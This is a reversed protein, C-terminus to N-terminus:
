RPELAPSFHRLVQPEWRIGLGPRQEGPHPDRGALPRRERCVPRWLERHARGDQRLEVERRRHRRSVTAAAELSLRCQRRRRQGGSARRLPRQRERAHCSVVAAQVQREQRTAPEVEPSRLEGPLPAACHSPARRALCPALAMSAGELDRAGRRGRDVDESRRDAGLERVIEAVRARSAVVVAREIAEGMTAATAFREEPCRELARMVVADLSAAEPASESPAPVRGIVIEVLVEVGSGKRMQAGTLLEWLVAGVSYIDARRDSRGALQEPALYRLKGKVADDVTHQRRFAAKAVGFDTIRASGDFGVLVNEPSVDRHVVGLARGDAHRSEHAAHLGALVDRAIAAVVDLPLRREAHAALRLLKALDLGDIWEMVLAPEDGGALGIVGVVNPHHVSAGIRAEDELVALTAPDEALFAHPKKVAVHCSRGGETRRALYVTAMGGVGLTRVIELSRFSDPSTDARRRLALQM